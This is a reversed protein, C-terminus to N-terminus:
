HDRQHPRNIKDLQFGVSRPNNPDLVVLDVVTNRDTTISYRQRYSMVSDAIELLLDFAGPLPQDASSPANAFHQTLQCTGIARELRRGIELFRWGSLRIMNEGVLGAFAALMSLAEDIQEPASLRAFADTSARVMFRNLTQWADPSFRDRIASATRHADNLIPLLQDAFLTPTTKADM